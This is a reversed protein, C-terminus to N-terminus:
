CNLYREEFREIILEDIEEPTYGLNCGDHHAHEVCRTRCGGGCIPAIRCEHCVPKVFKASMRDERLTGDWEIDGDPALHGLRGDSKFDRATCAFVDGNFNVLMENRKDGYCSERVYDMLRNNATRYGESNLRRRLERVKAYTADQLSEKRDQWVRQYDVNIRERCQQPWGSIIDVIEETSDVVKTTYNIRLTVPCGAEALRRVRELIADFSPAKGKGFRTNDHNERGGDLTIQFSAQRPALFEIMEQSLLFSNTTFHVSMEIGAKDAIDGIASVLPRVVRDFRMLPEGGFFSLHFCKMGKSEEMRRRAFATLAKVTEESMCSDKVHNEYCYWCHFNCDLTPNVILQFQSDDEDVERILEAVAAVEDKDADVLAGAKVMQERFEPSFDEVRGDRARCFDESGEKVAIYSDSFANYVLGSKEGLAIYSNWRSIKM